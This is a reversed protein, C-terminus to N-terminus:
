KRPIVLSKRTERTAVSQQQLSQYCNRLEKQTMGRDKRLEALREGIM